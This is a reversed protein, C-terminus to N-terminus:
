RVPCVKKGDSIEAGNLCPRSTANMKAIAQQRMAATAESSRPPLYTCSSAGRCQGSFQGIGVDVGSEVHVLRPAASWGGPGRWQPSRYCGPHLRSHRWSAARWPSSGISLVPCIPRGPGCAQGGRREVVHGALGSNERRGHGPHHVALVPDPRLGPLPARPSRPGRAVDGVAGRLAHGALALFHDAQDGDLRLGSGVHLLLAQQEDLFHEAADLGREARDLPRQEDRQEPRRDPGGVLPQLFDRGLDVPQQDRSRRTGLMEGQEGRAGRDHQDGAGGVLRVIDHDASLLGPVAASTPWRTSPM